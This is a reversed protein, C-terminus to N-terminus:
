KLVIAPMNHIFGALDFGFVVQSVITVRHIYELFGWYLTGTNDVKLAFDYLFFGTEGFFLVNLFFFVVPIYLVLLLVLVMNHIHKIKRGGGNSKV